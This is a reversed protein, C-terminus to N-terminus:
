DEVISSVLDDIALASLATVEDPLGVRSFQHSFLQLVRFRYLPRLRAIRIASVEDGASGLRQAAVSAFVRDEPLSYIRRMRIVFGLESSGAMDSVFFHGEGMEKKASEILSRAHKKPDNHSRCLQEFRMYPTIAENYCISLKGIHEEIDKRHKNKVGPLESLREIVDKQTLNALMIALDGAGNAGADTIEGVRRASSDEISKLYGPVWFLALYERFSFIPLYAITGDTKGNALDCDANIVLGLKPGSQGDPYEIRIIDGQARADRVHARETEAELTLRRTRKSYLGNSDKRDFRPQSLTSHRISCTSAILGLQTAIPTCKGIPKFAVSQFRKLFNPAGNKIAFLRDM